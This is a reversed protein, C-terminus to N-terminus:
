WFLNLEKKVKEFPFSKVGFSPNEELFTKIPLLYDQYRARNIKGSYYDEKLAAFQDTVSKSINDMREINETFHDLDIVDGDESKVLTDANQNNLEHLKNLSPQLADYFNSRFM